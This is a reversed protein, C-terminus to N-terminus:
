LKRFILKVWDEVFRLFILINIFLMSIVIVSATLFAKWFENQATIMGVPFGLDETIWWTAGLGVFTMIITALIAWLFKKISKTANKVIPFVDTRGLIPRTFIFMSVFRIAYSFMSFVYVFFISEAMYAIEKFPVYRMGEPSEPSGLTYHFYKHDRYANSAHASLIEAINQTVPNSIMLSHDQNILVVLCFLEILLCQFFINTAIKQTANMTLVLVGNKKFAVGYEAEIAKEVEEKEKAPLANFKREVEKADKYPSLVKDILPYFLEPAYIMLVAFGIYLLGGIVLRALGDIGFERPLPLIFFAAALVILYCIVLYQLRLYYVSSKTYIDAMDKSLSM